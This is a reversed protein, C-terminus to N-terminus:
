AAKNPKYCTHRDRGASKSEYLASDAAALLAKPSDFQNQSDFTVVGLSLTIGVSRGDTTQAKRTRAAECVRKGVRNAQEADLGPLLLVFEDGGYRAVIDSERLTDRL